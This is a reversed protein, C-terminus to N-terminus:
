ACLAGETLACQIQQWRNAPLLEEALRCLENCVAAPASIEVAKLWATIEANNLSKMMWFNGTRKEEESLTAVINQTLAMIERDSYNAWLVANIKQEEKNMHYLNFATFDFFSKMILEGTIEKEAQTISHRYVSLLNKLRNEYLADQEHESEFEHQLAAAFKAAAPLIIEDEHKAHRHFMFLVKETKEFAYEAAEDDTFDTQQLSVLTDCLM